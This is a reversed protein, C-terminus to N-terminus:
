VFLVLMGYAVTFCNVISMLSVKLKHVPVIITPVTSRNIEIVTM